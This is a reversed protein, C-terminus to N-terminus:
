HGASRQAGIRVHHSGTEGHCRRGAGVYGVGVTVAVQVVHGARTSEDEPVLMRRCHIGHDPLGPPGHVLVSGQGVHSDLQGGLKHVRDRAGFADDEGGGARLGRGVRQTHCPRNRAAVQDDFEFAPEM